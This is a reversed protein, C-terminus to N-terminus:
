VHEHVPQRTRTHTHTDRPPWLQVLSSDEEDTESKLHTESVQGPQSGLSGPSRQGQMEVGLVQIVPLVM